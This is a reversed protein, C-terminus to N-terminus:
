SDIVSAGRLAGTLSRRIRSHCRERFKAVRQEAPTLAKTVTIVGEESVRFDIRSGVAVRLRKRVIPSITLIRGPKIRATFKRTRM